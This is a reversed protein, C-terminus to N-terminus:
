ENAGLLFAVKAAVDAPNLVLYDLEAQVLPDWFVGGTGTLTVVEIRDPRCIDLYRLALATGEQLSIDTRTHSALAPLLAAVRTIVLPNLRDAVARLVQQQRGIRGLDGATDGRYRVYALASAGDLVRPGATFSHDGFTFPAAVEVEIGGLADIVTSFAAFDVLAFRDLPVDLLTSVVESQLPVGGVALAHNIKTLGLGPVDIRADRPISLMRCSGASADIHLVVIADARVGIDIEEEPRADVGLLLVTTTEDDATQRSVTFATRAIDVSAPLPDAFAQQADTPIMALPDESGRRTTGSAAARSRVTDVLASIVTVRRPEDGLLGGAAGGGLAIAALLCLAAVLGLARRRRQASSAQRSAGRDRDHSSLMHTM